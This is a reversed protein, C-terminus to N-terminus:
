VNGLERDPRLLWGNAHCRFNLRWAERHKAPTTYTDSCAGLNRHIIPTVAETSSLVARAPQRRMWLRFQHLHPPKVTQCCPQSRLFIGGIIAAIIIAWPETLRLRRMTKIFFSAESDPDSSHSPSSTGSLGPLKALVREVQRETSDLDTVDIYQLNTIQIPRDTQKMMVPIITKAKSLAYDIENM